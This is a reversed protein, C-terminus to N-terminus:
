YDGGSDYAGEIFDPNCLPLVRRRILKKLVAKKQSFTMRMATNSGKTKYIIDKTVPDIFEAFAFMGVSVIRRAEVKIVLDADKPNNVITWCGESLIAKGPRVMEKKNATFYVKTGPKTLTKLKEAKPDGAILSKSLFLPIFVLFLNKM